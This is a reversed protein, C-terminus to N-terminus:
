RLEDPTDHRRPLAAGTTLVYGAVLLVFAVFPSTRTGLLARGAVTAPHAFGALALGALGRVALVIGLAQVWVPMSRGARPARREVPSFVAVLGVLVAASAGIWVLRHTWWLGSGIAPLSLSLGVLMAGAVVLATLHWLFVTLVVTNLAITPRWVDPHQLWRTLRPRLVMLLACQMVTLVMICITPPSMNSIEDGPLGVMSPPYPGVTTLVVLVAFALGAVALYVRPSGRTADGDAYFFGLEQAFVFVAVYNLVAITSWAGTLRLVDFAAAFVPLAVLLWPGRRHLQLQLPALATVLLYVALFWLPQAAIRTIDRLL